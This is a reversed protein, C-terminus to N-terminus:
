KKSSKADETAGLYEFVCMEANDGVRRNLRIIRSYGGNRTANSKAIEFLRKIAVNNSSHTKDGLVHSNRYIRLKSAILRISHLDGCKAFTVLKDAMPKCVKAKNITTIIKNRLILEKLLNVCMASRHSTSRGLKFRYKRHRM